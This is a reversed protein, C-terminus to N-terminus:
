KRLAVFGDGLRQYGLVPSPPPPFMQRPASELPSTDADPHGLSGRSGGGEGPGLCSLLLLFAGDPDSNSVLVEVSRVSPTASGDGPSPPLFCSGPYLLRRRLHLARFCCGVVGDHLDARSSACM